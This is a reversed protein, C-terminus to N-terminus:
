LEAMIESVAVLANMTKAHRELQLAAGAKYEIVRQIIANASLSFQNYRYTATAELGTM